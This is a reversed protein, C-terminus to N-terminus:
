SPQRLTQTGQLDGSSLPLFGRVESFPTLGLRFGSPRAPCPNKINTCPDIQLAHLFFFFGRTCLRSVPSTQPLSPRRFYPGPLFDPNVSALGLRPALGRSAAPCVHGPLNKGKGGFGEESPCQLRWMEVLVRLNKM